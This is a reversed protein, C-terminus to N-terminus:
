CLQARHKPQRFAYLFLRCDASCPKDSTGHHQIRKCNTSWTASVRLLKIDGQEKILQKNQEMIQRYEENRQRLAEVLTGFTLEQV